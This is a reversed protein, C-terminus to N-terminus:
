VFGSNEFLFGGFFLCDAAVLPAPRVMMDAPPPAPYPSPHDQLPHRGAQVMFPWLMLVASEM